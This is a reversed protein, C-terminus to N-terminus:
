EKPKLMEIWDTLFALGHRIDSLAARVEGPSKKDTDGIRGLCWKLKQLIVRKDDANLWRPDGLAKYEDTTM